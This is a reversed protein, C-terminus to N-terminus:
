NSTQNYGCALRLLYLLFSKYRMHLKFPLILNNALLGVRRPKPCVVLDNRDFGMTEERSMFAAKQQFNCHNM